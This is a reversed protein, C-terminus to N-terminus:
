GPGRLLFERLTAVRLPLGAQATMLPGFHKIDGTLLVGCRGAIAASLVPADKAPLLQAALPLVDQMDAVVSVSHLLEALGARDAPRKRRLNHEAEGICWRSSVLVAKGGAALAWLLSFPSNGLTAPVLAASFLINADLFVRVPGPHHAPGSM